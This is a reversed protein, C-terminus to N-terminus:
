RCDALVPRYHSSLFSHFAARQQQWGVRPRFRTTLTFPGVLLVVVLALRLLSSLRHHAITITIITITVSSCRPPTSALYQKAMVILSAVHHERWPQLNACVVSFGKRTSTVVTLSAKKM